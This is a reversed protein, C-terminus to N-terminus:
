KYVPIWAPEGHYGQSKTIKNVERTNIDITYIDDKGDITGHYAIKDGMPSWSIEQEGFPTNTFRESEMTELNLLYIDHDQKPEELIERTFAVRTGDPAWSIYKVRGNGETLQKVSENALQYLYLETSGSRDSLFLVSQSDPSWCPRGHYADVPTLDVASRTTLTQMFIHDHDDVKETYLAYQGDPSALFDPLEQFDMPMSIGQSNILRHAFNGATDQEYHIIGEKAQWWRPGWDFGKQVTLQVESSGDQNCKYIDFGNGRSAIYILQQDVPTKQPPTKQCASLLCVLTLCSTLFRTMPQNFNAKFIRHESHNQIKSQEGIAPM